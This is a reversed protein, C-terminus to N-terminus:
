ELKIGPQKRVMTKKWGFIKRVLTKNINKM